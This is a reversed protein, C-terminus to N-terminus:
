CWWPDAVVDLQYQKGSTHKKELTISAQGTVMTEIEAILKHSFLLLLSSMSDFLQSVLVYFFTEVLM